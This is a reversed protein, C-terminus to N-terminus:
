VMWVDSSLVTPYGSWQAPPCRQQPALVRFVWEGRGLTKFLYLAHVSNPLELFRVLVAKM